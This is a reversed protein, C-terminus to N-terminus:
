ILTSLTNPTEMVFCVTWTRVTAAESTETQRRTEKKNESKEYIWYRGVSIYINLHQTQKSHYFM